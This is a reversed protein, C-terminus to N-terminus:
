ALLPSRAGYLCSTQGPRCAGIRMRRPRGRWPGHSSVTTPDAQRSGGAATVAEFADEVHLESGGAARHAVVGRRHEGSPVEDDVVGEGIGVRGLIGSDLRDEAQNGGVYLAGALDAGVDGVGVTAFAVDEDEGVAGLMEFSEPALEAAAM